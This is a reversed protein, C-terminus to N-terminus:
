PDINACVFESWRMIDYWLARPCYQYYELQHKQNQSNHCQFCQIFVDIIRTPTSTSMTQVNNVHRDFQSLWAICQLCKHHRLLYITNIITSMPCQRLQSCIVISITLTGPTVNFRSTQTKASEKYKQGQKYKYWWRDRDVDTPLNAKRQRRCQCGAAELHIRRM